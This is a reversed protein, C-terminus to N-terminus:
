NKLSGLIRLNVPLQKDHCSFLPQDSTLVTWFSQIGKQGRQM